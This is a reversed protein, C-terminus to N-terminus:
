WSGRLWGGVPLGDDVGKQVNVLHQVLGVGPQGLPPAPVMAM